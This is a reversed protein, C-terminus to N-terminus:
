GPEGTRIAAMVLQVFVDAIGADHEGGPQQRFLGDFAAEADIRHDLRRQRRARPHDGIVQVLGAQLRIEVLKTEIKDTVAARRADAVGARQGRGDLVGDDFVVQDGGGHKGAVAIELRPDM